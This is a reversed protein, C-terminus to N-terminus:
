DASMANPYVRIIEGSLSFRDAIMRLHNQSTPTDIVPHSLENRLLRHLQETLKGAVIRGVIDSGGGAPFPVILRVTKAPYGQAPAYGAAAACVLSAAIAHLRM